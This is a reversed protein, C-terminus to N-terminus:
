ILWLPNKEGIHNSVIEILEVDEYDEEDLVSPACRLLKCMVAKKVRLEDYNSGSGSRKLTNIM